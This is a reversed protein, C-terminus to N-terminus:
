RRGGRGQINRVLLACALNLLVATVDLPDLGCGLALERLRGVLARAATGGAGGDGARVGSQVGALCGREYGADFYAAAERVARQKLRLDEYRVWRVRDKKPVNRGLGGAARLALRDLQRVLPLRSLHVDVPHPGDDTGRAQEFPSRKMTRAKRGSPTRPHRAQYAAGPSAPLHRGSAPQPQVEIRPFCPSWADGQRTRM